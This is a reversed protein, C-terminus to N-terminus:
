RSAAAKARLKEEKALLRKQKEIKARAKLGLRGGGWQRRHEVNDNYRERSIEVLKTLEAKDEKRPEGIAIVAATKRGVLKGLRSKSKVVCYPIDKKRCLAPLWLVLEVPDVDHAIVVLKARDTEVLNTIHNIGSTVSLPRKITALSVGKAKAEALKTLRQKRELKSEPRYKHLLKFLRHAHNKTLVRSFQHIAPPVKLRQQLIRKQRQIRIRKPWKVFRTLDRDTPLIDNGVSFNRVRKEYLPFTM